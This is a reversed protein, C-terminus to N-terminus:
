TLVFKFGRLSNKDPRDNENPKMWNKVMRSDPHWHAGKLATMQVEQRLCHLFWGIIAAYSLTSPWFIMPDTPITQDQGM